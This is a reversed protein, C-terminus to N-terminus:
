NNDLGNDVVTALYKCSTLGPKIRFAIYDFAHAASLYQVTIMYVEIRRPESNAHHMCVACQRLDIVM